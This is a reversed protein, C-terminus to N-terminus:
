HKPVTPTHGHQHEYFKSRMNKIRDSLSFSKKSDAQNPQSAIHAAVKEGMTPTFHINNKFQVKESMIEVAKTEQFYTSANPHKKKEELYVDVFERIDCINQNVLQKQTNKSLKQITRYVEVASEEALKHTVEAPLQKNTMIKTKQNQGLPMSTLDSEIGILSTPVGSLKQYTHNLFEMIPNKTLFNGLSFTQKETFEPSMAISAVQANQSVSYIGALKFGTVKSWWDNRYANKRDAATKESDLFGVVTNLSKEQKAKELLQSVISMDETDGSKIIYYISAVMQKAHNKSYNETVFKKWNPGLKHNLTDIAMEYIAKAKLRNIAHDDLDQFHTSNPPLNESYIKRARLEIKFERTEQSVDLINKKFETQLTSM